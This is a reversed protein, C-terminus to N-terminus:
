PAPERPPVARFFFLREAPGTSIGFPLHTFLVDDCGNLANAHFNAGSCDISRIPWDLSVAKQWAEIELHDAALLRAGSPAAHSARILLQGKELITIEDGEVSRGGREEAYHQLGWHGDFLLEVEAPLERVAERYLNGQRADGSALAMAFVGAGILAATRLGSPRRGGTWLLVAIPILIPLLYRTALLLLRFQLLLNAAIWAGLALRERADQGGSFANEGAVVIAHAGLATGLGMLMVAYVPYELLWGGLSGAFAAGGLLAIRLGRRRSSGSTLVPFPVVALGIMPLLVAMINPNSGDSQFRASAVMHPEGYWHASIASWLILGVAPSAALLLRGWRREASIAALVALPAVLTIANYKFLPAAGAALIGIMLVSWGGDRGYRVAAVVALTGLAAAPMDPMALIGSLVFVPSALAAGAIWFRPADFLAALRMGAYLLMLGFPLMALRISMETWGFISAWGALWYPLLPPNSLINFASESTGLWNIEFGYPDLPEAAIQRALGLMNPEDIRFASSSFTLVIACWFGLVLLAPFGARHNL